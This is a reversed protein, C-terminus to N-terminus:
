KNQLQFNTGRLRGWRSYENRRGVGRQCAGTKETYGYTQKQKINTWKNQKKSEMSLSIMRYKDKQTQSIWKAYYGRHGDINNYIALNWEKKHSLLVYMCIYIYKDGYTSPCKPQKWIKVATFLARTCVPTCTDKQILAKTKRLFIGLLPIEPSYPLEIKLTKFVRRRQKGYLQVLKCDWWCHKLAWKERSTLM